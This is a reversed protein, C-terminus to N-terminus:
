VCPLIGLRAYNKIVRFKSKASLTIVSDNLKNEIDMNRILQFGFRFMEDSEAEAKLSSISHMQATNKRNGWM